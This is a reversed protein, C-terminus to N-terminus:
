AARGFRAFSGYSADGMPTTKLNGFVAMRKSMTTKAQNVLSVPDASAENRTPAPAVAAPQPASGGSPLCM